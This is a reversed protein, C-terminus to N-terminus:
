FFYEGHIIRSNPFAAAIHPAHAGGCVVMISGSPAAVRGVEAIIAQTRALAKAPDILEHIVAKLRREAGTQPPARDCFVDITRRVSMDSVLVDMENALQGIQEPSLGDRLIPPAPPEHGRVPIGCREAWRYACLMEPKQGTVDGRAALDDPMELILQDPAASALAAELADFLDSDRLHATGIISLRQM